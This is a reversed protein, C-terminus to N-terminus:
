KSARCHSPAVKCSGMNHRMVAGEAHDGLQQRQEQSGTEPYALARLNRSLSGLRELCALM